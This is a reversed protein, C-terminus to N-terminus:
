LLGNYKGNPIDIIMEYNRKSVLYATMGDEILHILEDNNKIGAIIDGPIKKHIINGVIIGDALVQIVNHDNKYDPGHQLTIHSGFTINRSEKKFGYCVVRTREVSANKNILKKARVSM